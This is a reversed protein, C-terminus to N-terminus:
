LVSPLGSHSKLHKSMKIFSLAQQFDTDEKSTFSIVGLENSSQPRKLEVHPTIGKEHISEGSPTYYHAVTLKVAKGKGVPVLSQVSGKGFSRRGLLVARKNDKLAGALVEAASASYADILVLMPFHSLALSPYAKFIQDYDKSRGKISVILGEEIFLNAVKIASEFLGGPNGRLDLILGELQKYQNIVKQIEQLTRKTFANIRIYVLQDELDKHVVSRFSILKSKLKIERTKKLISDKVTITFKQGRKRSVLLEHVEAGNLGFTKKHNIKLLIQGPQMGAKHAPSNELVSIVVPQKDKIELEIGLGKFQGKASEKFNKLKEGSLFVSHPDLEKLMGSIAGEILKEAPVEKVYSKKVIYLVDSFVKLYEYRKETDKNKEALCPLSFLSVFFVLFINLFM